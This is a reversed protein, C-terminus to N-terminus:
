YNVISVYLFFNFLDINIVICELLLLYSAFNIYATLRLYVYVLLFPYIISNVVKSIHGTWPFISM